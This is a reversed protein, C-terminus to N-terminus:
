LLPRPSLKGELGTNFTSRGPSSMLFTAGFASCRRPLSASGYPEMQPAHCLSFLLQAAHDARLDSSQTILLSQRLLQRGLATRGQSQFQAPRRERFDFCLLATHGIGFQHYQGLCQPDTHRIQKRRFDCPPTSGTGTTGAAANRVQTRMRCFCDGKYAAIKGGTDSIDLLFEFIQQSSQTVLLSM